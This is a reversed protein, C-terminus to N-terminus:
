RGISPSTSPSHRSSSMPSPQGAGAPKLQPGPRGGAGASIRLLAPAKGGRSGIAARHALWVRFDAASHVQVRLAMRARGNGCPQACRATFSGTRGVRLRLVRVQGPVAELRRGLQPVWFSHAVDSSGLLISVPRGAPLHLEDIAIVGSDPYRVMWQWQRAILEIRLPREEGPRSALRGAFLAGWAVLLIAAAFLGARRAPSAPRDPSSM